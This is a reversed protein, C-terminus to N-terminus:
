GRWTNGIRLTPPSRSACLAASSPTRFSRIQYSLGLVLVVVFLVVQLWKPENSVFHTIGTAVAGAGILATLVM